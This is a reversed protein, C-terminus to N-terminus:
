TCETSEEIEISTEIVGASAEAVAESYPVHLGGSETGYVSYTVGTIWADDIVTLQWSSGGKFTALGASVETASWTETSSNWWKGVNVGSNAVLYANVTGSVIPDGSNTPGKKVMDVTVINDTSAVFRQM